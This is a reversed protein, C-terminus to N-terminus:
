CNVIKKVAEPPTVPKYNFEKNFKSSNFYYDRDFQYYVDKIERLVPIFLGLISIAAPGMSNIKKETKMEKMFLEIIDRSTIKEEHTPLHWVRNYAEPTNGLIAMGRGIDGSFTFSHIKDPNGVWVPNKGKLLNNYVTQTLGSNNVGPGYFDAARAIIANVEGKEAAKTLMGAVMARVKGKRSEPNVPTEETMNGIHEHSYMYMNDLFVIKSNYKKCASILNEMFLPWHSRWVGTRYEFGITVYVIESDKVSEDLFSPNSLDGRALIENGKVARPNRSVLKVKDTYDALCKALERGIPSGAGLITQM